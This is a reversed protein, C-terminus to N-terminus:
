VNIQQVEIDEYNNRKTENLYVASPLLRTLNIGFDSMSSFTFSFHDIVVFWGCGGDVALIYLIDNKSGSEAVKKRDKM